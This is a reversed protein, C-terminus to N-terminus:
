PSDKEDASSAKVAAATKEAAAQLRSLAEPVTRTGAIAAKAEEDGGSVITRILQGYATSAFRGSTQEIIAASDVGLKYFVGAANDAQSSSIRTPLLM